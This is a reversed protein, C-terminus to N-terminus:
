EACIYENTQLRKMAPHHNKLYYNMDTTNDINGQFRSPNSEERLLRVKGKRVEFCTV